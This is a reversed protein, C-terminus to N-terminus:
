LVNFPGSVKKWNECLIVYGFRVAQLEPGSTPYANEQYWKFPFVKFNTSIHFSHLLIYCMLDPLICLFFIRKENKQYWWRQFALSLGYQIIGAWTCNLNQGSSPLLTYTCLKLSICHVMTNRNLTNYWSQGFTGLKNILLKECEFSHVRKLSYCPIIESYYSSYITCHM